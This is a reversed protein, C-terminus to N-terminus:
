VPVPGGFAGLMRAIWVAVSAVQIAVFALVALRSLTDHVMGGPGGRAFTVRVMALVLLAAALLTPIALPHMAISGRVDGRLLRWVARTM